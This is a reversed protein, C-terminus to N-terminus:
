RAHANLDNYHQNHADRLAVVEQHIEHVETAIRDVKEDLNGVKEVVIELIERMATLDARILALAVSNRDYDMYEEHEDPTATM